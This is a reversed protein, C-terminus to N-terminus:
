KWESDAGGAGSEEASWGAMSLDDGFGDGGGADMMEATNVLKAAFKGFRNVTVVMFGLYPATVLAVGGAFMAAARPRRYAITGLVAAGAAATLWPSGAEDQPAQLYRQVREETAPEGAEAWHRTIGKIHGAGVVGVVPQSGAELGAEWLRRALILDREDVIVKRMATNSREMGAVGKAGAVQEEELRQMWTSDGKVARQRFTEVLSNGCERVTLVDAPKISGATDMGDQFIRRAAALVVDPQPCGGERMMELLRRRMGAESNEDPGLGWPDEEEVEAEKRTPPPERRLFDPPRGVDISTPSDILPGSGGDEKRGSDMTNRLRRMDAQTRSDHRTLYRTYYQLRRMTAEQDRDGLVVGRAAEIAALFEGGPTTGMLAGTITYISSMFFQFAEGSLSMKVIELTSKNRLRTIGYTDGKEAQELLKREREPDLELVVVAPSVRSILASVDQAAKRSVHATGVVYVLSGSPHRLVTFSQGEGNGLTNRDM